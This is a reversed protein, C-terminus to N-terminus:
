AAGTDRGAARFAALHFAAQAPGPAFAAGVPCARRALCGGERCPAGEPRDLHARCAAADYGADTFASVPCAARCPAPCPDCPREVAARSPLALREPLALAGRFSVWVGREAHILMGLKSGWVPAGKLAWRFFPAYPPGGFPFAAAGGFAAALAGIVRESWRDLPHEAGDTAEPSATFATWMAEGEPGLLVLTGTGPPAGDEPAPHLAGIVGLGHAAAAGAIRALTM